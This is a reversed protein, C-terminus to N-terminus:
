KFLGNWWNSFNKNFHRGIYEFQRNGIPIAENQAKEVVYDFIAEKEKNSLKLSKNTEIVNKLEGKNLEGQSYKLAASAVLDAIQANTQEDYRAIQKDMLVGQKISNIISVELSQNQRIQNIYQAGLQSDLWNNQIAQAKSRLETNRVNSFAQAIDAMAKAGYWDSQTELYKSQADQQKRVGELQYATMLSSGIGSFDPRFSQMSAGSPSPLGVSNASASGFSGNSLVAAPNIGAKEMRKVYNSPDNYENQKDWMMTNYDMQKQMMKESWENNMQAIRFNANNASNQSKAGFMNGLISSGVGILAATTLSM